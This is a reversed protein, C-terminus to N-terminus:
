WLLYESPWCSIFPLEVDYTMLSNCILVLLYWSVDTLIALIWVSAVGHQHPHPSENSVPVCFPLAVKSSLKATEYLILCVKM